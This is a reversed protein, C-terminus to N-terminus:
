PLQQFPLIPQVKVNDIKSRLAHLHFPKSIYDDMGNEICKDKDDILANATVAIIYTPKLNEAKEYERIIRTTEFGNMDSMKIDMLVIDFKLAKYKEIAEGGSESKQYYYGLEDLWMCNVMLNSKDDDVVLILPKRNQNLSTSDPEPTLNLKPEFSSM